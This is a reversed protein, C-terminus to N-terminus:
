AVGCGRGRWGRWRLLVAVRVRAPAPEVGGSKDPGERRRGPDMNYAFVWGHVDREALRTM